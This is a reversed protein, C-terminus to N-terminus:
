HLKLKIAEVIKYCAQLCAPATVIFPPGAQLEKVYIEAATYCQQVAGKMNYHVSHTRGLDFLSSLEKRKIVSQPAWIQKGNLAQPGMYQQMFERETCVVIGERAAKEKWAKHAEPGEIGSGDLVLVVKKPCHALGARDKSQDLQYKEFSTYFNEAGEIHLLIAKLTQKSIDFNVPPKDAPVDGGRFFHGYGQWIIILGTMRRGEGKIAPLPQSSPMSASSVSGDTSFIQSGKSSIPYSCASWPVGGSSCPEHMNSSSYSASPPAHHPILLKRARPLACFAACFPSLLNCIRAAYMSSQLFM